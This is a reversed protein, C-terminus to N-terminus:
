KRTLFFVVKYYIRQRFFVIKIDLRVFPFKIVYKSTKIEVLVFTSCVVVGGSGCADMQLLNLLIEDNSRHHYVRLPDLTPSLNNLDLMVESALCQM